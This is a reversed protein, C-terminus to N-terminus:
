DKSSSTPIRLYSEFTDGKQRILYNEKGVASEIMETALGFCRDPILQDKGAKDTAIVLLSGDDLWIVQIVSEEGHLTNKMFEHLAFLICEKPLPCLAKIAENAMRRCEEKMKESIFESSGSLTQVSGSAILRL